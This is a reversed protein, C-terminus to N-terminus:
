QWFSGDVDLHAELGRFSMKALQDLLRGRSLLDDDRAGAARCHSERENRPLLLSLARAVGGLRDSM